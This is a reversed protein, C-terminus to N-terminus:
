YAAAVASWRRSVVNSFCLNFSWNIYNLLNHNYNLNFRIAFFSKSIRANITQMIELRSNASSQSQRCYGSSCVNFRVFRPVSFFVSASCFSAGCCPLWGFMYTHIYTHPPLVRDKVSSWGLWWGVCVAGYGVLGLCALLGSWDSMWM